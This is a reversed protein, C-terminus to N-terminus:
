QPTFEIVVSVGVTNEEDYVIGKDTFRRIIIRPKPFVLIANRLRKWSDRECDVPVPAHGRRVVKETPKIFTVAQIPISAERRQAKGNNTTWEYRLGDATSLLVIMTEPIAPAMQPKPQYEAAARAREIMWIWRIVYVSGAM